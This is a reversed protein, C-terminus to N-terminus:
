VKARDIGDYLYVVETCIYESQLEQELLFAIIQFALLQCNTVLLDYMTLVLEIACITCRSCLKIIEFEIRKGFKVRRM